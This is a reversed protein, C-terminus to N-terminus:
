AIRPLRVVPTGKQVLALKLSGPFAVRVIKYVVANPKVHKRPAEAIIRRGGDGGNVTSSKLVM